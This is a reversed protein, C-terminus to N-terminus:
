HLGYARSVSMVFIIGRNPDDIHFTKRITDVIVQTQGKKSLILIIEKEPEIAMAFLTSDEHIGSGRANIITGGRAGVKNAAEIVDQAIGKNVITYIAEIDSMEESEGGDNYDYHKTGIFHTLPISFAIGHHPKAFGMERSIVSMAELAIEKEAILYVLEKRSDNIELFELIRNKITGKGYFITGGRIGHAKAIKMVKSGHDANVICCVLEYGAM